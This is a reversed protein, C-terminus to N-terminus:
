YSYISSPRVQLRNGLHDHDYLRWAEYSTFSGELSRHLQHHQCPFYRRRQGHRHRRPEQMPNAPLRQQRSRRFYPYFLPSTSLSLLFSCFKPLLFSAVLASLFSFCTGLAGFTDIHNKVLREREAQTRLDGPVLNAKQGAEEILKKTVQASNDSSTCM